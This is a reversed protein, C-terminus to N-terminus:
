GRNQRKFRLTGSDVPLELFLDGDKLFYSSARGVERAFRDSLSGPSCMARTLTIPRFTIRRDRGASYSTMGRNCDAHLAARGGREFRITYREPQDVQIQEVPTTFSVWQWTADLVDSPLTSDADARERYPAPPQGTSEPQGRSCGALLVGILGLLPLLERQRTGIVATRVAM